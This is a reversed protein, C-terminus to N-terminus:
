LEGSPRELAVGIWLGPQFQTEGVYKVVGMKLGSATDVFVREGVEPSPPEERSEEQNVVAGKVEAPATSSGKSVVPPPGQPTSSSCEADKSVSNAAPTETPPSITVLTDEPLPPLPTSQSTEKSPLSNQSSSDRPIEKPPLNIQPTEKPPSSSQPTEKPPSSSQPTEKPPSSSQPTEKSPSSSQATEKPSSNQPAEIPRPTISLSSESPSSEQASEDSVSEELVASDTAKEEADKKEVQEVNVDAAIGELEEATSLEMGVPSHSLTSKKEVHTEEEEVTDETDHPQTPSPTYSYDAKTPQPVVPPTEKLETGHKQNHSQEAEPCVKTTADKLGIGADPTQSGNGSAEVTGNGNKGAAEAPHQVDPDSQLGAEDLNGIGNEVADQKQSGNELSLTSNKGEPCAGEIALPDEVEFKVDDEVKHPASSPSDCRKEEVVSSATEELGQEEQEVSEEENSGLEVADKLTREPEGEVLAAATGKTGELAEEEQEVSEEEVSGLEVVAELTRELDEEAASTGELGQEEEETNGSEKNGSELKRESDGEVLVASTEETRELAQEEEGLAVAAKLTREPDGSDSGSRESLEQESATLAATSITGSDARSLSMPQPVSSLFAAHHLDVSCLDCVSFPYCHVSITVCVCVTM